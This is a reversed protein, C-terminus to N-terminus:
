IQRITEQGAATVTERSGTQNTGGSNQNTNGRTAWFYETARTPDPAPLRIAGAAVCLDQYAHLRERLKPIWDKTNEVEWSCFFESGQVVHLRKPVEGTMEKFCIAYIATQLFYDDLWAKPQPSTKGKKTKWDLIALEGDIVGIFDCRGQVGLLHSFMPVEIGIVEDIRGLKARINRFTFGVVNQPIQIKNDVLHNELLDHVAHGFEQSERSIRDAEEQGVRAIWAELFSKDSTEGLVRSVSPYRIPIQYSNEYPFFSSYKLNTYM